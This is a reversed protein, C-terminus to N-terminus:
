QGFIFATFYNIPINLYYFSTEQPFLQKLIHMQGYKEASVIAEEQRYVSSSSIVDCYGEDCGLSLSFHLFLFFFLSFLFFYGYNLRLSRHFDEDAMYQWVRVQGKQRLKARLPTAGDM